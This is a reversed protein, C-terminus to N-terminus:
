DAMVAEMEFRTDVPIVIWAALYALFGVGTCLAIALRTQRLGTEAVHVSGTMKGSNSM